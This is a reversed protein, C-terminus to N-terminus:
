HGSRTRRRWGALIVIGAGLLLMVAAVGGAAWPVESPTVDTPNDVVVAVRSDAGITFTAGNPTDVGDIELSPTVWSAGNPLGGTPAGETVTVVTGTPLAPSSWPTGNTLNVPQAGGPQGPYSYTVPFVTGPALLPEGPGTVDKLLSFQGDSPETPNELLVHVEGATGITLTAPQGPTVGTGSFVPTQWTADAPGTPAVERVQVVTSVRLNQPGDVTQGDTLQLPAWM